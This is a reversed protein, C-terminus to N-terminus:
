CKRLRNIYLLLVDLMCRWRNGKKRLKKVGYRYKGEEFKGGYRKKLDEEQKKFFRYGNTNKDDNVFDCAHCIFNTTKLEEDEYRYFGYM